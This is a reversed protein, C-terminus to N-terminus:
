YGYIGRYSESMNRGPLARSYVLQDWNQAGTGVLSDLMAKNRMDLGAKRQGKLYKNSRGLQTKHMISKINTEAAEAQNKSSENEEVGSMSATGGDGGAGLAIDNLAETIHGANYDNYMASLGRFTSGSDTSMPWGIFTSSSAGSSSSSGVSSPARYGRFLNRSARPTFDNDVSMANSPGSLNIGQVEPVMSDFYNDINDRIARPNSEVHIATGTSSNDSGESNDSPVSEPKRYDFLSMSSNVARNASDVSAQRFSERSRRAQRHPEFENVIENWLEDVDQSRTGPVNTTSPGPVDIPLVWGISGGDIVEPDRSLGEQPLPVLPQVPVFGPPQLYPRGTHPDLPLSQRRSAHEATRNRIRQYPPLSQRRSPTNSAMSEQDLTGENYSTIFNDFFNAARREREPDWLADTGEWNWGQSAIFMDRLWALFRAEDTFGGERHHLAEIMDRNWVSLPRLLWVSQRAYRNTALILRRVLDRRERSLRAFEGNM